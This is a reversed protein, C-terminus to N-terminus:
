RVRSVADPDPAEQCNAAAIDDLRDFGGGEAARAATVLARDFDSAAEGFSSEPLRDLITGALDAARADDGDDRTGQYAPLVECLMDWKDPVREVGLGCATAALAVACVLARM